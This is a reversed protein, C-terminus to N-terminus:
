YHHPNIELVYVLCRENELKYIVRWKRNLRSSRFGKWIGRLSEDNFGKILRLGKPGETEIIRKWVVYNKLVSPPIKKFQRLLKKNEFIIYM